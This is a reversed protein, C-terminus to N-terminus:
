DCSAAIDGAVKAISPHWIVRRTMEILKQRGIHTMRHHILTMRHHIVLMLEVLVNFTVVPVVGHFLVGEKVILDERHRRFQMAKKPWHHARVILQRKVASILSSKRQLKEVEELSLLSTIHVGGPGHNM